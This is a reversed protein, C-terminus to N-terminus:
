QLEKCNRKSLLLAACMAATGFASQRYIGARLMEYVRGLSFRRALVEGLLFVQQANPQTLVNSTMKLAAVNLELNIQYRGFIASFNRKTKELGSATGVVNKAHQRYFVTPEQEFIVEGGSGVVLLLAWWDHYPIDFDASGGKIVGVATANLVITNGSIVNEVLLNAFSLPLMPAKTTHLPTLEQDVVKVLSGFAVPLLDQRASLQAVARELKYPMWVDDQDCFAVMKGSCKKHELAKLFNKAFGQKPGSILCVDKDPHDSQFKQIIQLTEDTSGDDSVLLNWNKYTQHLLSELQEAVYEAGNYTAMIIAIDTKSRM